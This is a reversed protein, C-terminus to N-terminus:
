GIFRSWIEEFEKVDYHERGLPKLGSERIVKNIVHKSVGFKKKLKDKTMFRKASTIQVNYFPDFILIYYAELDDLEFESCEIFYYSDFDKGQQMHTGIRMYVNNITQGVYVVKDGKLLFYIGSRNNEKLLNKNQQIEELTVKNGEITTWGKKTELWGKVKELDFRVRSNIKYYPLGEKRWTAITTRSVDFMEMLEKTSLLTTNNKM